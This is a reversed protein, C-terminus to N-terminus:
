RDLAYRDVWIEEADDLGDPMWRILGGPHGDREQMTVRRATDPQSRIVTAEYAQVHLTSRLGDNSSDVFRWSPSSSRHRKPMIEPLAFILGPFIQTRTVLKTVRM